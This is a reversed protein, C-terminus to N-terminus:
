PKVARIHLFLPLRQWRDGPSATADPVEVVREILLGAAEFAGFYAELPRHRSTFTMRLGDREVTDAYRQQEFYSDRIVFPADPTRSAFKGASNIPHVVAACLHGGPVLVRAAERVAGQMDDMDHLSLLATVLQVSSDAHPLDAADAVTYEGDPDAQRAHEMLTRSADIGAVRYGRAQLDRPFRGEGCGIDLTLGSPPPLLALFRDRHFRWYSDHGPARAWAAWRHAEGEWADRLSPDDAEPDPSEAAPRESPVIEKEFTYSTKIRRYGAREYFRHARERTVNSRVRLSRCGWDRASAETRELLAAGVGASRHQESVVLGALQAAPPLELVRLREVHAWGIPVDNTDVAVLLCHDAPAALATELRERLDAESVPYGLQGTLEAVEAADRVDM